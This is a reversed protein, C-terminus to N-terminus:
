IIERVIAGNYSSYYITKIDHNKLTEICKPCPRSYMLNGIRNLRIVLISLGKERILIKNIASHEAHMTFQKHVLYINSQNKNYGSGFIKGDKFITAGHRHRLTSKYAEKITQSLFPVKIVIKPRLKM